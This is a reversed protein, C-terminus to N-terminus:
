AARTAAGHELWWRYTAAIGDRLGIRATWGLGALKAVDLLKRPTGDPKAPDFVIRGRYGVVEAILEGLERISVDSGVGVNVIGGDSYRDMLHLVADALDDAHLFERRPEGSGWM